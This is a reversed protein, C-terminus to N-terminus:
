WLTEEMNNQAPLDDPPSDDPSKRSMRAVFHCNGSVRAHVMAGGLDEHTVEEGSVAKVVDPGTIYMQATGKVMFIFTTIAPSYTAGGAGAWSWPYRPVVGSYLTNRTFIEGYGRLSDVGGPHTCGRFGATRHVARTRPRWIWPRASRRRPGGTLSHGRDGHLGSQIRLGVPRQDQMASSWLTGSSGRRTRGFDSTRHMVFTDIEEFTGPDSSFTSGREPTLKKKAHQSEIRKAGGGQYAQERMKALNKLKEDITM